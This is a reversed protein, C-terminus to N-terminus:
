IEVTKSKLSSVRICSYSRSSEKSPSYLNEVCIPKPRGTCSTEQNHNNYPLYLEAKVTWHYDPWKRSCKQGKQTKKGPKQRNNKTFFSFRLVVTVSAPDHHTFIKVLDIRDKDLCVLQPCLLVM